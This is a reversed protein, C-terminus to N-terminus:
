SREEEKRNWNMIGFVVAFVMSAVTLLWAMGCTLDQMGFM